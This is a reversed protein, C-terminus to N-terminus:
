LQMLPQVHYKGVFEYHAQKFLYEVAGVLYIFQVILFLHIHLTLSMPDKKLHLLM